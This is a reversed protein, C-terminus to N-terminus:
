AALSSSSRRRRRDFREGPELADFRQERWVRRDAEGRARREARLAPGFREGVVRLVYADRYHDYSFAPTLLTLWHKAV